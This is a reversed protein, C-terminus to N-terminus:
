QIIPPKVGKFFIYSIILGIWIIFGFLAVFYVVALRGLGEAWLKRFDSIAGITFFTMVFFLVRLANLGDTATKTQGVVKASDKVEERLAKINEKQTAIETMLKEKLAVDTTEKAQKELLKIKGEILKVQDEVAKVKPAHPAAIALIL